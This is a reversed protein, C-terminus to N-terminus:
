IDETTSDQDLTGHEAPQPAAPAPIDFGPLEYWHEVKRFSYKSVLDDLAAGYDAVAAQGTGIRAIEEELDDVPTPAEEAVAVAEEAVAPIEEAALEVKPAKPERKTRSSRPKAAAVPESEIVLEPEAVPEAEVVPQPEPEPEAVAEPEPEAVLEPEVIPESQVVPEPEAVAEPEADAPEAVADPAAETEALDDPEGVAPEDPEPAPEPEADAAFVVETTHWSPTVPSEELRASPVEAEDSLPPQPEVEAHEAVDPESWRRTSPLWGSAVAPEDGAAVPEVEAVSGQDLQHSIRDLLEDVQQMSYGRPVVAFRLSRLDSGSLTGSPVHPQPTDTVTAPFEGLRGSAAVAALGLIAVAVMWVLWEM